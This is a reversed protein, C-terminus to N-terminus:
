IIKRVSMKNNIYPSRKNVVFSFTKLEGKKTSLPEVFLRRNEARVTTNAAYKKSGITVTVKYNGDPVKVSFFVPRKLGKKLEKSTPVNTVDWGYGISDNYSPQAVKMDFTQANLCAVCFLSALTTSILKKM